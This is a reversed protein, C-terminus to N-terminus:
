VSEYLNRSYKVVSVVSPTCEERLLYSLVFIYPYLARILVSPLYLPIYLAWRPLADQALM